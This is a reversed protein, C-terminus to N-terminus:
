SLAGENEEAHRGRNYNWALTVPILAILSFVLGAIFALVSILNGLAFSPLLIMIVALVFAGLAFAFGGGTLLLAQSFNARLDGEIKGTQGNILIWKNLRDPGTYYTIYAPMLLYTWNREGPTIQWQFQRIKAGECAKLVEAQVIAHLRTEADSWSEAPGRSPLRILANGLAQDTYAQRQDVDVRGYRNKFQRDSELASSPVNEFTRDVTGIRPEWRLRTETMAQSMVRGREYRERHSKVEYEYGVEAKWQGTLHADVWWFPVYVQQVRAMLKDTRMDLPRFPVRKTLKEIAAPLQQQPVSFPIYAEPQHVVLGARATDDLLDLPAQVCNPCIPLASAMSPPVAFGVGCEPCAAIELM